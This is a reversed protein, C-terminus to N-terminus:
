VLLALEDGELEAAKAEDWLYSVHKFKTTETKM